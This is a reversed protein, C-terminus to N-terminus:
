VSFLTMDRVTAWWSFAKMDEHLIVSKFIRLFLSIVSTRPHPPIINIIERFTRHGWTIVSAFLQLYTVAFNTLFFCSEPVATYQLLFHNQYLQIDNQLISHNRYLRINYCSIIRICSYITAIFSESVATYWLLFHNRYLQINYFSLFHNWYLRIDNQFSFNFDSFQFFLAFTRETDSVSYEAAASSPRLTKRSSFQSFYDVWRMM